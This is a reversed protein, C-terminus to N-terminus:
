TRRSHVIKSRPHPLPPTNPGAAFHTQAQDVPHILLDLALARGAAGRALSAIRGHRRRTRPNQRPRRARGAAHAFRRTRQRRRGRGPLDTRPGPRWAARPALLAVRGKVNGLVSGGLVGAAGGLVVTQAAALVARTQMLSSPRAANGRPLREKKTTPSRIPDLDISLPDTRQRDVPNERQWAATNSGVARARASASIGNAAVARDRGDRDSTGKV